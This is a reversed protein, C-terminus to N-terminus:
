YSRDLIFDTIEILNKSKNGYKKLKDIIMKKRSFAFELTKKYGLLKILTSKGKKKDKKVPKGVNKKSGRIDLLDDAIQFLFGLEEGILRMERKIKNNKSAIISPALCCFEFLKGTKKKQMNIIKSAAIKRKEYSLDLFQGGAIGTHGACEALKKLLIVKTAPKVKYKKDTIIEFAMTLLSNGALVATSEGFKAHTSPKGRRLKDNDMCPLDDHILSYSHICEVAACINIVKNFNLNFIKATNLIITSRIKKGGFLTGYKMAPILNSYNQNTFYKRLFRDVIKANKKIKKQM